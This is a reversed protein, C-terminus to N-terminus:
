SFPCPSAPLPIPPLLSPLQPFYPLPCPSAPFLSPSPSTPLPIPPLLSPSVPFCTLPCPSAPFPVHPLLSPSPPFFPLPCPSPSLYATHLHFAIMLPLAMTHAPQFPPTVPGGSNPLSIPPIALTISIGTYRPSLSTPIALPRAPPLAILLLSRSSVFLPLPCFPARRTTPPAIPPLSPSSVFPHRRSSPLAVLRLSPLSVFPPHRASPMAVPSPRFPHRRRFPPRCASPPMAVPSPRFPCRRRFPSRRASPIAVASPLAVPQLCPSPRFPHRRASPFAVPSPRFPLHRSSPLAVASPLAFLALSLSPCFPSPPLSNSPRLVCRCNCQLAPVRFPARRVSATRRVYMHPLRGIRASRVCMCAGDERYLHAHRPM